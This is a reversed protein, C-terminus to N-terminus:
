FSQHVSLKAHSWCLCLPLCQLLHLVLLSMKIYTLLEVCSDNQEEGLLSYLTKWLDNQQTVLSLDKGTYSVKEAFALSDWLSLHQQVTVPNYVRREQILPVEPLPEAAVHTPPFIENFSVTTPKICNRQKCYM